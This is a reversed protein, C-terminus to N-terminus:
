GRRCGTTRKDGHPGAVRLGMCVQVCQHVALEALLLLAHELVAEACRPRSLSLIDRHLGNLVFNSYQTRAVLHHKAERNSEKLAVCASKDVMETTKPM